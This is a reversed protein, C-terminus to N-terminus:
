GIKHCVARGRIQDKAFVVGDLIDFILKVMDWWYFFM